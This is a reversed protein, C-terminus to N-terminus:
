PKSYRPPNKKTRRAEEVEEQEDEEEQHKGDECKLKTVFLFSTSIINTSFTTQRPKERIRGERGRIIIRGSRSLVFGYEFM